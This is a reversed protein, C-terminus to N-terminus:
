PRRIASGTLVGGGVTKSAEPNMMGIVIFGVSRDVAGSGDHVLSVDATEETNTTAGGGTARRM